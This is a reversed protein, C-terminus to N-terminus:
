TSKPQEITKDKRPRGSKTKHPIQGKSFARNNEDFLMSSIFYDSKILYKAANIVDNKETYSKMGIGCYEKYKDKENNCNWYNGLGHTINDKWLDGIGKALTIDERHQSGDLFLMVHFHFLKRSAYELKWIYGVFGDQYNERINEILQSIHEKTILSCQKLHDNYKESQELIAPNFFGQRYSLDIRLVCLRSRYDFLGNIYKKIRRNYTDNHNRQAKLSKKFSDLKLGKYLEIFFDLNNFKRCEDMTSIYLKIYPSFRSNPFNDNITILYYNDRYTILEKYKNEIDELIIKQEKSIEKKDLGNLLNQKTIKKRLATDKNLEKLLDEIKIVCEHSHKFIEDVLVTNDNEIYFSIFKLYNEENINM